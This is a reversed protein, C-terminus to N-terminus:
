PASFARAPRVRGAAVFLYRLAGIGLVWPGAAGRRWALGSLVLLLAADTEMDFRAGFASATGERRAIWGDVGDLVLAVTGLGVIWWRAAPGLPGPEVLLGVLPLAVMLRGLTVRNATGMGPGPFESPRAHLILVGTAAYVALIALPFTPSPALFRVVVAM